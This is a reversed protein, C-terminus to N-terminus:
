AEASNTPRVCIRWSWRASWCWGTARGHHPSTSASSMALGSLGSSKGDAVLSIFMIDREDGQFAAPEGVRINHLLQVESGLVQEIATMIAVAQEQGLLTTVGISRKHMAPDDAIRGIADVICDVEPPNVKGRRYGDEVLIDVLPPDLRESASPLRLPVLTLVRQDYGSSSPPLSLM